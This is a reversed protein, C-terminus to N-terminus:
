CWIWILLPIQILLLIWFCINTIKTYREVFKEKWIKEMLVLWLHGGDLAPIPLINTIACFFNLLGLQILTFNAGKTLSDLVLYVIYDNKTFISKILIWDVQLGLFISRYNLLYCVCAILFNMAVGALLIMAKKRYPQALFDDPDKKSEMGKIDCYGGIIWPTIRFDIGKFIKHLCPKWFGISFTRVGVGCMRSAILHALEHMCITFLLLGIFKSWIIIWSMQEFWM